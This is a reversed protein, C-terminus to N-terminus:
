RPEALLRGPVPRRTEAGAAGAVLAGPLDNVHQLALASVVLDFRAATGFPLM